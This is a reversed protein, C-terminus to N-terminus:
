IIQLGYQAILSRPCDWRKGDSARELTYFLEGMRVVRFEDGEDFTHTACSSGIDMVSLDHKLKYDSM